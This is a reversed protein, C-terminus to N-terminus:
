ESPTMKELIQQGQWVAGHSLHRQWAGESPAWRFGSAKLMARVGADPKGPFFLQLRNAEANEVMRVGSNHLTEKTERTANRRLHEIREKIRRINASNNSLQYAAYGKDWKSTSPNNWIALVSAPIGLALVAAEDGKRLAKNVAAMHAQKAELPALEDQLKQVAEPDDSSIGGTGVSAARSAVEDAAKLTEFAKGFKSHIRNRYNRDRKESHHGVLIPQGFPIGEAMTHAQKYAANGEARLRDARAELRERKAEQKQEYHNM